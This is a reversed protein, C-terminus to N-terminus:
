HGYGAVSGGGREVERGQGVVDAYPSMRKGGRTLTIEGNANDVRSKEGM